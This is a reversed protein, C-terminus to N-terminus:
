YHLNVQIRSTKERLRAQEENTRQTKEEKEQQKKQEDAKRALVEGEYKKQKEARDRAIEARVRELAERCFMDRLIERITQQIGEFQNFIKTYGKYHLTDIQVSARFNHM